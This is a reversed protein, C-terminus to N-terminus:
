RKSVNLYLNNMLKSLVISDISIFQNKKKLRIRKILHVYEEYKSKSWGRNCYLNDPYRMTSAEYYSSNPGCLGHWENDTRLFIDRTYLWLLTLTVHRVVYSRSAQRSLAHLSVHSSCEIQYQQLILQTVSLQSNCQLQNEHLHKTIVSPRRSRFSSMRWNIWNLKLTKKTQKTKELISGDNIVKWLMLKCENILWAKSRRWSTKWTCLWSSAFTLLQQTVATNNIIRCSYNHWQTHNYYLDDEYVKLFTLRIACDCKYKLYNTSSHSPFQIM